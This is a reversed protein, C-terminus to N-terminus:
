KNINKDVANDYECADRLYGVIEENQSLYNM